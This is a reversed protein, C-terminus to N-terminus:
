AGGRPSYNIANTILNNLLEEIHKPDAEVSMLNGFSYTLAIGLKAIFLVEIKEESMIGKHTWSFPGELLVGSARKLKGAM